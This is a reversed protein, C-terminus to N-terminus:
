IEQRIERKTVNGNVDIFTEDRAYETIRSINYCKMIGRSGSIHYQTNCLSCNLNEGIRTLEKECKYYTCCTGCIKMPRHYEITIKNEDFIKMCKFCKNSAMKVDKTLVTRQKGHYIYYFTDDIKRDPTTSTENVGCEKCFYIIERVYITGVEVAKPASVSYCSCSGCGICFDGCFSGDWNEIEKYEHELIYGNLTKKGRKKPKTRIRRSNRYKSLM